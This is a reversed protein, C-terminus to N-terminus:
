APLTIWKCFKCDKSSNPMENQVVKIAKRFLHEAHEINVKVKVLDTHFVFHGTENIAEPMFFLLYSYDETEYGNKRLLFNYLNLQNQYHHHTDEKLAFGRTKFDLTIIKGSGNHLLEDVAGRLMIKSEHDVFQLGKLNNRWVKLLDM